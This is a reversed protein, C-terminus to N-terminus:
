TSAISETTGAPAREGRRWWTGVDIGASARRTRHPSIPQPPANLVTRTRFAEAYRIGRSAHMGRVRMISALVEPQLLPKDSQTRMTSRLVDIKEHALCDELALIGLSGKDTVKSLFAEDDSRSPLTVDVYLDPAFDYSTGFQNIEYCWISEGARFERHVAEALAVHDQHTDSDCPSLILDPAIEDRLGAVRRQIDRAQQPFETDIYHFCDFSTYGMRAAAREGEVTRDQRRPVAYHDSFVRVHVEANHYRLLRLMTAGCGIEVDDVHPGLALVRLPRDADDRQLHLVASMAFRKSAPNIDGTPLM